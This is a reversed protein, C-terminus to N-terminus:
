SLAATRSAARARAAVPKAAQRRVGTAARVSRSSARASARRSLATAMARIIVSSIPLGTAWAWPSISFHAWNHSHYAALPGAM